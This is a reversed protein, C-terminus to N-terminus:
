KTKPAPLTLKVDGDAGQYELVYSGTRRKGSAMPFYLYGAVPKTIVADPLAKDELEEEMVRRDADTSAPGPASGGTGVGVGVGVGTGWTGTTMGVTPYLVIDRSRAQGKRQNIGAISRPEVPRVMRDDIRLAFDMTQLDLLSGDKKPYVAVECVAYQSLDTAFSGQVQDSDMCEAAVTIGKLEGQATYDAPSNRAPLGRNAASCLVAALSITLLLRKM